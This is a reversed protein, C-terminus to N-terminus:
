PRRYVTVAIVNPVVEKVIDGAELDTLLVLHERMNGPVFIHGVNMLHHHKNVGCIKCTAIDEVARRQQPVMTSNM